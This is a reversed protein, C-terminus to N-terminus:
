FASPIITVLYSSPASIIISLKATATFLTPHITSVATAIQPLQSIKSYIGLSHPFVTNVPGPGLLLFTRTHTCDNGSHLVM